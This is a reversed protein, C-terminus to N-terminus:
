LDSALFTQFLSPQHHYECPGANYVTGNNALIYCYQIPVDLSCSMTVDDGEFAFVEVSRAVREAGKVQVYFSSNHIVNLDAVGISM